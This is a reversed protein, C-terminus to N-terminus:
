GLCTSGLQTREPKLRAWDLGAPGLGGGEIGNWGLTASGLGVFKLHALELRAVGLM